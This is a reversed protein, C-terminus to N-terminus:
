RLRSYEAKARALIPIDPDSDKWLTVFDQYAAKAAITDGALTLARGLQLRAVAGVPDNIVIGRHDLIKKFEAAAEAGRHAALYAEGRVYIPYLAGFFGSISSMPAGLEYPVATQLLEIAHPSESHNLALLARLAPIYTFQAETDEPLRKELDDAIRQSQSADGALALAFAAGYEVDRGKSLELAAMARRKAEAANGFFAEQLAASTVFLAATERQGAQQALEAAHRSMRRAQQLHGSYGLVLAEQDSMWEELGSNGRGFAEEREMGAQDSKLFAIQYRVIRLFPNQLKREFARQVTREADGLRDLFVYTQALNVYGPFFDPDIQISQQCEEVSKEFNGLPQHIFASLFTLAKTDRPYTQAWL